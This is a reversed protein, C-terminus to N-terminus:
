LTFCGWARWSSTVARVHCQMSGSPSCSDQAAAVHPYEVVPLPCVCIACPANCIAVDTHLLRKDTVRCSLTCCYVARNLSDLPQARPHAVSTQVTCFDICAEGMRWTFLSAGDGASDTCVVGRFAVPRLRVCVHVGSSGSVREGSLRISAVAVGARGVIPLRSIRMNATGDVTSSVDAERSRLDLSRGAVTGFAEVMAGSAVFSALGDVANAV